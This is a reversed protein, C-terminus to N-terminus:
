GGSFQGLTYDEPIDPEFDSADLKINWQFQDFIMKTYIKGEVVFELELSVPLETEVDVALVAVFDELPPANPNLIKPDNVEVKEVKVGDIIKSGLAKYNAELFRMVVQRPMMQELERLEADSLSHRDYVKALPVIGIFVKEKLLSYTRTSVHGNLFSETWEGYEVSYHVKTETGSEFNKQPDTTEMRRKRFSYTQIDELKKVVEGWAVSTGDISGGSYYVGLSVAIIIVAAAAFKTINSKMITRWLTPMAPQNKNTQGSVRSIENNIKEDLGSSTPVHLKKFLKRLNDAPRM